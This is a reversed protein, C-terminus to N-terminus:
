MVQIDKEENISINSRATHDRSVDAAVQMTFSDTGNENRVFMCELYSFGFQLSQIFGLRILKM